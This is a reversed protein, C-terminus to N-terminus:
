VEQIEIGYIAFMLKKKLLYERTRVGKVDEVIQKGNVDLYDFDSVYTCIKIGNVKLEYRQQLELKSILGGKLLLKLEGYRKAEKKSAFTTGDVVTRIARYKGKQTKKSYKTQSKKLSKKMRNIVQKITSM